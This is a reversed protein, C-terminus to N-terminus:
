LGPPDLTSYGSIQGDNNIGTATSFNGGLSGLDTTKGGSYLFAHFGGSPLSSRGVVQGADNIGNAVTLPGDFSGLYDAPCRAPAALLLGAALATVLRNM